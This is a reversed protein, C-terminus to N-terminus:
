RLILQDHFPNYKACWVWHSHSALVKLPKSLNRTDWIKIKRDNGTSLVVFPKNPNYDVSRITDDHATVKLQSVEMERSDVFKLDSGYGVVFEKENHPDWCLCGEDYSVNKVHQQIDGSLEEGDTLAM